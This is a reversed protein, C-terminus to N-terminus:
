LRIMMSVRLRLAQRDRAQLRSYERAERGPPHDPSPAKGCVAKSTYFNYIKIRLSVYSFTNNDSNLRAAVCACQADCLWVCDCVCVRFQKKTKKTESM